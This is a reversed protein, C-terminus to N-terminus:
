SDKRYQRIAENNDEIISNIRERVSNTLFRSRRLMGLWGNTYEIRSIISEM